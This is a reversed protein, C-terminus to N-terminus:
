HAKLILTHETAGPLFPAPDGHVWADHGARYYPSLPNGGQGCPMQFIGEDEHGPSVVLRESAGFGPHQVRPVDDDGSLEIAPMDLRLLRGVFGFLGGSLPHRIRSVNFAGWRAGAPNSFGAAALDRRTDEAAALLLDDWTAYDPALLHMPKKQILNWVPEENRLLTYNFQPYADVCPEFIPTLVRAIVHERFKRVIPYAAPAASQPNTIASKPNASDASAPVAPNAARNTTDGWTEGAADRLRALSKNKTNALTDRLLKHWRALFPAHDDLAISLLASPSFPQLAPDPLASNGSPPRRSADGLDGLPFEASGASLRDLLEQIRAGREGPRVGGDGLLAFIKGGFLRQNATSLHPPPSHAASDTTDAGHVIKEPVKEPPLLGHWGRDNFSWTVPLRGDSGFRDPLRGCITWAIDGNTDAILINQAPVGATKAIRLADRVNTATELDLLNYNAAAPDHAVWKLAIKQGKLNKGIIPGWICTEVKLIGPTKEGRVNIAEDRTETHLIDKNAYYFIPDLYDPTLVVVDSTDAYSNTFVWAIKGNSGVVIAPAGPITVGTVRNGPWVLSARYWTNPVRLDLHMDNEVIASGHANAVAMSNSGEAPIAPALAVQPAARTNHAFAAPPQSPDARLNIYGSAPIPALPATTGDLASDDPTMASAFYALVKDGYYDRITGLTREYVVGSRQLDIAMADIVLISDEPLWPSPAVGLLLYEFPHERLQALGANVGDAYAALLARQSEPLLALSERALARFGHIRVAKDADLAKAGFLEALEGAAHRRAVDMQFFRDQAHLFGLARAADIRSAAHITPVGLVDRTVTVDDALGHLPADGDLQPLSAAVRAHFRWAYACAVLVCVILVVLVILAARRRIRRKVDQLTVVTVASTASPNSM